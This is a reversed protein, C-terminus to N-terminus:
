DKNTKFVKKVEDIRPMSSTTGKKTVSIAATASAFTTAKLIDGNFHLLGAGLGGVFADGAGTTDIANIGKGANIIEYMDSSCLLSGRDGLTIILVPVGIEQCIRKMTIKPCDLIDCKPKDIGLSKTLDNYENENPVIIDVHKLLDLNVESRIPAPNLITTVKSQKAFQLSEATAFLNSEFQCILLSASSIKEAIIDSFCLNENAGLDVVIQNEGKEDVLIAATGTPLETKETLHYNLGEIDFVSRANISYSDNGVAGIFCVSAGARKAAIAQNSGKGGPTAARLSGVVTQGPKPLSKTEWILDQVFSGIVVIDNKMDKVSM